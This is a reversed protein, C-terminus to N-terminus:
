ECLLFDYYGLLSSDEVASKHTGTLALINSVLLSILITYKTRAHTKQRPIYTVIKNETKQRKKKM